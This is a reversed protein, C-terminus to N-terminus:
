ASRAQDLADRLQSVFSFIEAFRLDDNDLRREIIEIIASGVIAADSIMAVAAASEASKIGFGVGIPLPLTRRFEDLRKGVENTDIAKTGTVGKVGVYYVFGRAIECINKIRSSDSNPAILFIQDLGHRALKQNIDVSEEPPADVILVGDVGAREAQESFREYGMAEIPNLYGMLVIPVTANDRRFERAIEMVGTLSMGSLLARESARQIVPGDAMPDSFPVGLEIIDAGAEVLTHMTRLTSVANPDGATVYTVLACTNRSQLSSFCNQIRNHM